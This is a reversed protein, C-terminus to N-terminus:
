ACMRPVGRCCMPSCAYSWGRTEEPAGATSQGYVGM